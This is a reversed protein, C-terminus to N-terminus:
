EKRESRCESEKHQKLVRDTCFGCLLGPGADPVLFLPAVVQCRSCRPAPSPLPDWRLGPRFHHWREPTLRSM